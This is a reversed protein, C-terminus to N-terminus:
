GIEERMKMAEIKDILNVASMLFNTDVQGTGDNRSMIRSVTSSLTRKSVMTGQRTLIENPDFDDDFDNLDDFDDFEGVDEMGEMQETILGEEELFEEESIEPNEVIKKSEIPSTNYNLPTGPINPSPSVTKSFKKNINVQLFNEVEEGLKLSDSILSMDPIKDSELPKSLNFDKLFDALNKEKVLVGNALKMNKIDKKMEKIKGKQLKNLFDFENYFKSRVNKCKKLKIEPGRDDRKPQKLIEQPGLVPNSLIDPTDIFLNESIYNELDVEDEERIDELPTKRKRPKKRKRKLKMRSPLLRSNQSIPSAPNGIYGKKKRPIQYYTKGGKKVASQKPKAPQTREIEKLMEDRFFDIIDKTSKWHSNEQQSKHLKEKSKFKATKPHSFSNELKYKKTPTKSKLRKPTTNRKGSRDRGHFSRSYSTRLSSKKSNRSRSRLNQYSLRVMSRNKRDFQRIVSKSQRKYTKPKSERKYSKSSKIFDDTGIISIQNINRDLSSSSAKSHKSRDKSGRKSKPLLDLSSTRIKSNIKKNSFNTHTKNKVKKFKKNVIQQNRRLFGDIKRQNKVKRKKTVRSKRPTKAKSLQSKVRKLRVPILNLKNRLLNPHKSLDKM